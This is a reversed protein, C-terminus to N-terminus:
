PTEEHTWHVPVWGTAGEDPGDIVEIQSAPGDTDTIEVPADADVLLALDDDVLEGINAHEDDGIAEVVLAYADPNAAVPVEGDDGEVLLVGQEGVDPRGELEDAGPADDDLADPDEVLVQPVAYQVSDGEAFTVLGGDAIREHPLGVFVATVVSGAVLAVSGAWFLGQWGPPKPQLQSVSDLDSKALRRVQETSSQHYLWVCLAIAGIAGFPVLLTVLVGTVATGAAVPDGWNSRLKWSTVGIAAFAILALVVEM